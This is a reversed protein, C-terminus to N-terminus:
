AGCLASVPAPTERLAAAAAARQKKVVEAVEDLHVLAGKLSENRIVWLSKYEAADKRAATLEKHLSKYEAERAEGAWQLAEIQNELNQVEKNSCELDDQLSGVDKEADEYLKRLAELNAQKAKLVGAVASGVHTGDFPLDPLVQKWLDRLLTDYRAREQSVLDELAVASTRQGAEAQKTAQKALEYRWQLEKVAKWHAWTFIWCKGTLLEDISQKSEEFM